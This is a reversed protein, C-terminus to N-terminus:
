QVHRLLLPDTRQDKWFVPWIPCAEEGPHLLQENITSLVIGKKRMQRVDRFGQSHKSLLICNPDPAWGTM